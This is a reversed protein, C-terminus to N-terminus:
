SPLAPRLPRCTQARTGGRETKGRRGDRRGWGGRARAQECLSALGLSRPPKAGADARARQWEDRLEVAPAVTGACCALAPHAARIERLDNRLGFGVQARSRSSPPARAICPPARRRRRRPPPLNTTTATAHHRRRSPPPPTATTATTCRSSTRRPSSRASRATCGSPTRPACPPCTSCSSGGTFLPPASPGLTLGRSLPPWRVADRSPVPRPGVAATRRRRRADRLRAAGVAAEDPPARPRM